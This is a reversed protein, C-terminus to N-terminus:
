DVPNPFRLLGNVSDLRADPDRTVARGPAPAPNRTLLVRKAHDVRIRVLRVPRITAALTMSRAAQPAGLDM